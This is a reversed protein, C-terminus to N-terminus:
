DKKQMSDILDALVQWQSEDLKALASIFRNKFSDEEEALLQKTLRAIEKERDAPPYMEGEGDRLWEERVGFERCISILMQDTLARNGSEINSIATKTVGFVSGFQEMTMKRDKRVERVREGKTM